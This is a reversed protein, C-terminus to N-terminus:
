DDFCDWGDELNGNEDWVGLSGLSGESSISDVICEWYEQLETNTMKQLEEYTNECYDSEYIQNILNLKQKERLKNATM